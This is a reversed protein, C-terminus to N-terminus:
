LVLVGSCCGDSIIFVTSIFLIVHFLVLPCSFSRIRPSGSSWARRQPLAVPAVAGPGRDSPAEGLYTLVYLHLHLERKSFFIGALILERRFANAERYPCISLYFSLVVRMLETRGPRTSVKRRMAKKGVRAEEKV